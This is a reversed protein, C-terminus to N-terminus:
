FFYFSFRAPFILCLYPRTPTLVSCSLTFFNRHDFAKLFQPESLYTGQELYNPLSKFKGGSKRASLAPLETAQSLAACGDQGLSAPSIAEM